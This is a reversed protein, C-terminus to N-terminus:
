EEETIFRYATIVENGAAFLNSLESTGNEIQSSDDEIYYNGSPTLFYFDVKADTTPVISETKVAKTIYNSAEKVFKKAANTVTEYTYGGIFAQGTSMYVSADGSTFSVVTVIANGM